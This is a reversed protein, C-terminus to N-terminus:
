QARNEYEIYEEEMLEATTKVKDDLVDSLYALCRQRITEQPYRSDRGDNVPYIMYTTAVCYEFWEWLENAEKTEDGVMKFLHGFLCNKDSHKKRVVDACWEDEHTGEIYEIIGKLKPKHEELM